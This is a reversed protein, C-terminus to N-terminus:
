HRVEAAGESAKKKITESAKGYQRALGEAVGRGQKVAEGTAHQVEETFNRPISDSAVAENVMQEQQGAEYERQVSDALSNGKPLDQQIPLQEPDMSKVAGTAHGVEKAVGGALQTGREQASAVTSGTSHRISEIGEKFKGVAQGFKESIPHTLREIRTEDQSVEEPFQSVIKEGQEHANEGYRHTQTWASQAEDNATRGLGKPTLREATSFDKRSLVDGSEAEVVGTQQNHEAASSPQGYKEVVEGSRETVVGANHGLGSMAGSAHKNAPLSKNSERLGKTFEGLEEKGGHLIQSTGHKLGEAVGQVTHVVSEEADYITSSIKKLLGSATSGSVPSDSMKAKAETQGPRDM